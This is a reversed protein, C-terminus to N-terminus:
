LRGQLLPLSAFCITDDDHSVRVKNQNIWLTELNVFRDFDWLMQLGRSGLHLEVTDRVQKANVVPLENLPQAVVLGVYEEPV